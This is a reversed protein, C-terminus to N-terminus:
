ELGIMMFAGWYIPQPYEARLEKKADIFSQRLNNTNLWKQYFKLMLKQTAEDDVKFMSMILVKAGAVLFARQLGYVGEGAELDGLGTECASLVVLDTKDLNLSMAEYATLIGNEMNYNYDTKDLLDGAGKLLLGTRMLPSQTLLAEGGGIEKEFTLAETPKYLGHTAIHFIKPSNLEKIKEEAASRDLYETTTWGKQDLIFQVQNVEKETGPLPPINRTDASATLYFTPNGFMSATNENTVARSKVKRLYIDKTNSVLIINANDLIFRGDPSPIAELNIQNYIGDASLYVTAAQGIEDVIPKWYVNYSVEDPVKGTISNRYYKFYRTEMNHGDEMLIAKPKSLNSTVYLGAYIVSDTFIHNFYRYRVMEIAVENPQLSKKVDEFVIRKTEFNQGFLESKQSLEKELREVEQTLANPDIENEILEAPSMSLAITLLEKKQVWNNYQSKLQEDTSNMIRERIKISSSLLLAKTMLQVNYIKGTLDKFDDLNSFALTNYFEFDSKITNWYKTKERESLAPFYKKIFEEYNALAQEILRKSRKFDKEMYYVKSLKSLVKVYEPHNVSFFKEYLDKSKNYFEESKRYNKLQYYVDGTLTYISAANINNKTGTKVRWINEAVTLANFAIDYRGESIYLVAVNKLIEAYQPNERGLKKEMIDRAEIMLKEVVKTDDGKQFKILALRSLSNAVEIHERGFQNEQSAIAKSINEEAKEYDGLTYNIEGLLKQTPATKTSREGYTKVAIENARRAIRDAETYDGKALLIRGKNILPDILQLSNNGYLAEYEEILNALLKDTESYKGLQIFLTSLEKATSLEDGVPVDSKKIIQRTRHFTSAAEDFMGKIGYLRAQTELANIYAPTYETYSRNHKLDIVELAKRINAEAEDYEGLKLQLKAINNHEMGFLIDTNDFTYNAADKAQQLTQSALQYKDSMEHWQAIHNLINIMDKHTISYEKAVLNYYSEEYIKGAEAIKNTYDLYFNALAIRSLHFEPSNEGCLEKKIDSLQNVYAEANGYRQETIAVQYLFELIRIRTRYYKPLAKSAIVTVAENELNRTRDRSLKSDFEVAKLNVQHLSAKPYYKDIMKEYELKTNLYRPRNGQKLLLELYSLYLEHALANTPNTKRKLLNLTKDFELFPPLNRNGNDVMARAWIYLYQVEALSTEGLYRKKSRIWGQLENFIHEVDPDDANAGTVSVRGKRAYAMGTLVKLRAYENHRAYIESEELRSTKIQGNEVSTEKDVARAAYYKEVSALLELADNVFGQGIMAEAKLQAIRGALAESLQDTKKLLSEAREIYERAIRYNGYENYIEGVDLMTMAYSASSEGYVAQSSTLANGLSTEFNEVMGIALNIRAERIHYALIYNNQPSIKLATSRVKTLTKLAKSFNGAKYYGDAKGLAKDLKKNQANANQLSFLCLVVALTYFRIINM